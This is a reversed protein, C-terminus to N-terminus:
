YKGLCLWQGEPGRLRLSQCYYGSPSVFAVPNACASPVTGLRNRVVMPYTPLVLDLCVPQGPAAAAFVFCFVHSLGSAHLPANM